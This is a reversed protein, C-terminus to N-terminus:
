VNWNFYLCCILLSLLTHTISINPNLILSKVNGTQCNNSTFTALFLVANANTIFKFCLTQLQLQIYQFAQRTRIHEIKVPESHWVRLNNFVFCTASTFETM